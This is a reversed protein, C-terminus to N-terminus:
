RTRGHKVWDPWRASVPIYKVGYSVRLEDFANYTLEMLYESDEAYAHYTFTGGPRPDIEQRIERIMAYPGHLRRILREKWEQDDYIVGQRDGINVTPAFKVRWGAKLRIEYQSGSKWKVPEKAKDALDLFMSWFPEREYSHCVVVADTKRYLIASLMWTTAGIMRVPIYDRTANIRSFEDLPALGLKPYFTDWWM